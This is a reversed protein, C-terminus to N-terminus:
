NVHCSWQVAAVDRRHNVVGERLGLLPVDVRAHHRHNADRVAAPKRGLRSPKLRANRRNDRQRPPPVQGLGEVVVCCYVSHPAIAKQEQLIEKGSRVRLQVRDPVIQLVVFIKRANFGECQAPRSFGIQRVHIRPLNREKHGVVEKVPQELRVVLQLKPQLEFPWLHKQQILPNMSLGLM